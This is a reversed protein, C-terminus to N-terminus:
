KESNSYDYMFDIIRIGRNNRGNNKINIRESLDADKILTKNYNSELLELVKVIQSNHTNKGIDNYIFPFSPEYHNVINRIIRIKELYGSFRTLKVKDVKDNEFFCNYIYKQGQFDLLQFLIHLEGFTLGCPIVWLPITEQSNLYHSILPNSREAPVDYKVNNFLEYKKTGIMVMKDLLNRKKVIGSDNDEKYGSKTLIYKFNRFFLPLEKDDNSILFNTIDDVYSVCECDGMDNYAKCIYQFLSNKLKREFYGIYSYLTNSFIDDIKALKMITSSGIEDKYIHKGKENKSYYFLHKYPNILSVYSREHLMNKHNENIVIRKEEKLFLIQEEINKYKEFHM